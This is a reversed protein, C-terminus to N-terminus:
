TDEPSETEKDEFMEQITDMHPDTVSKKWANKLDDESVLGESQLAECITATWGSTRFLELEMERIVGVLGMMDQQLEATREFLEGLAKNVNISPEPKNAYDNIPKKKNNNLETMKKFMEKADIIKGDTM